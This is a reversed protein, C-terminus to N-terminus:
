GSAAYEGALWTGVVDVEDPEFAVLDARFGPAIRGLQDGLGLFRAPSLSAYILADTLTVDLFRVCNWVATAMDIASGALKGDKTACRGNEAVIENGYLTFSTKKGGVPPMADTVLMPSGAGRLALKLMPISVHEGDVILGYWCGASELAAAIPGPERSAMPRMANFLHTFGSLGDAIAHRTEDYTAMSHGLSVRVGGNVLETIFKTSVCEPACTVVTTGGKLSLLLKLHHADAARILEPSHIGPKEPSLFPGELHIGLVGPSSKMAKEVAAIAARMKEDTDTILTPLFSTTGFRRHAAAIAAIAEPTPDNNFLRDGGGNVQVDIFGPALWIGEPLDKVPLDEPLGRRSAVGVIQQGEIVVASNHRVTIGDFVTDAAVAHRTPTSM